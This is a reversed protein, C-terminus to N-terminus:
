SASPLKNNRGRLEARQDQWLALRSIFFELRKFRMQDRIPVAEASEKRVAGHKSVSAGPIDRRKKVLEKWQDDQALATETADDYELTKDYRYTFFEKIFSEPTNSLESREPQQGYDAYEVTEATALSGLRHLESLYRGPNKNLEAEFASLRMEGHTEDKDIIFVPQNFTQKSSAV